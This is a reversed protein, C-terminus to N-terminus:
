QEVKPRGAAAIPVAHGFDGDLSASGAVIPGGAAAKAQDDRRIGLFFELDDPDHATDTPLSMSRKDLPKVLHATILIVLETQDKQYQTSKFLNGLVPIDGLMPYKDMTSRSQENLMGAVAFTQGNKLEITTSTQRTNIAPISSGNITIARSYDLNSVEPSVKLNIREGGVLTPTFNLQVGFKKWEISTTGLGASVPVPIQGGALFDASQGNLCVLNPEALIKVLGNEKLMDLVATMATNGAGGWNTNWRAVATGQNMSMTAKNTPPNFERYALQIPSSEFSASSDSGSTKMTVYKYTNAVTDVNFMGSAVSTLSGILTYAFNGDGVANLNIGMRNVVSKAMEAVRVELMVQQVGGVSVLNLVKKPAYVEALALAKKLNESDRVTGSLAISDQSAMVELGSEGPLVDHLMRKLRSVDPAVDLDYVARVKDGKDWLTLNTIGPARGTVYIQRPSLLVFDAVEPQAVSVRSVDVDSQLIVSKGITLSLKPASRVSVPAAFSLGTVTVVLVCALLRAGWARVRRSAM